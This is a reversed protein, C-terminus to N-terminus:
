SVYVCLNRVFGTVEIEPLLLVSQGIFMDICVFLPVFCFVPFVFVIIIIIIVMYLLWFLHSLFAPCSPFFFLAFFIIM